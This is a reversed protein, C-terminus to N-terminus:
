IEINLKKAYAQLIARRRLSNQRRRHQDNKRTHRHNPTEITRYSIPPSTKPSLPLPPGAHVTIPPSSQETKKNKRTGGFAEKIITFINASM